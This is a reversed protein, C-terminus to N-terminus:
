GGEDRNEGVIESEGMGRGEGRLEGDVRFPVDRSLFERDGCGRVDEATTGEGQGHPGAELRTLTGGSRVSAISELWGSRCDNGGSEGRTRRKTGRM